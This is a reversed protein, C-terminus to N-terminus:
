LHTTRRIYASFDPHSPGGGDVSAGIREIHDVPIGGIGIEEDVGAVDLGYLYKLIRCRSGDISGSSCTAYDKDSRLSSFCSLGLYAIIVLEAKGSQVM